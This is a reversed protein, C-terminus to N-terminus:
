PQAQDMYILHESLSNHTIINRLVVMKVLNNDFYEWGRLVFKTKYILDLPDENPDVKESFFALKFNKTNGAFLSELDIDASDKIADSRHKCWVVKGNITFDYVPQVDVPCDIILAVYPADNILRNKDAGLVANPAVQILRGLNNM